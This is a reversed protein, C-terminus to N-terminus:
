VILLVFLRPFTPTARLSEVCRMSGRVPGKNAQAATATHLARCGDHARLSAFIDVREQSPEDDSRYTGKGDSLKLNRNVRESESVTDGECPRLPSVSM